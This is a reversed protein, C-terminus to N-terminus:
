RTMPRSRNSAPVGMKASRPRPLKPLASSTPLFSDNPYWIEERFSPEVKAIEVFLTGPHASALEIENGNRSEAWFRHVMGVKEGTAAAVTARGYAAIIARRGSIFGGFVKLRGAM